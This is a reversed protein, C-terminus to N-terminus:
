HSVFFYSGPRNRSDRSTTRSMRRTLANTNADQNQHQRRRCNCNKIRNQIWRLYTPMSADVVRWIKILRILRIVRIVEIYDTHMSLNSNSKQLDHRLTLGNTLSHNSFFVEELWPLELLLTIIVVCDWLFNHSMFYTRDRWMVVTVDFM